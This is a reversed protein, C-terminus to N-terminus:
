DSQETLLRLLLENTIRSSRERALQVTILQGFSFILAGGLLTGLVIGLGAAAAPPGYTITGTNIDYNQFTPSVMILVGAAVGLVVVVVSVIALVIIMVELFIFQRKVHPMLIRSARQRDPSSPLKLTM